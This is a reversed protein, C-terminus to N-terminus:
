RPGGKEEDDLTVNESDKLPGGLLKWLSWLWCVDDDAFTLIAGFGDPEKSDGVDSRDVPAEVSGLAM